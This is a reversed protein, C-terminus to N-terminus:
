KRKEDLCINAFYIIYEVYLCHTGQPRTAWNTVNFVLPTHHKFIWSLVYLMCWFCIYPWSSMLTELGPVEIFQVILSLLIFLYFSMILMCLSQQDTDWYGGWLQSGHMIRTLFRNLCVSRVVRIGVALFRWGANFSRPGKRFSLVYPMESLMGWSHILLRQMPQEFWGVLKEWIIGISLKLHDSQVRM